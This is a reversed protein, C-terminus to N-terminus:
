LAGIMERVLRRNEGSDFSAASMEVGLRAVQPPLSLLQGQLHLAQHRRQASRRPHWRPPVPRRAGEALLGELEEEGLRKPLKQLTTFHPVRVLHLAERLERHEALCVVAERCVWGEHRMLRLIAV